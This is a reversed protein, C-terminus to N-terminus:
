QDSGLGVRRMPAQRLEESIMAAGAGQLAFIEGEDPAAEVRCGSPKVPRDSPIRAMPLFHRDPAPLVPAARRGMPQELFGETWRAQDSAPQLGSPGMLNPDVHGRGTM